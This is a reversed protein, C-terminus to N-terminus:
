DNLHNQFVDHVLPARYYWQDCTLGCIKNGEIFKIGRRYLMILLFDIRRNIHYISIEGELNSFLDNTVEPINLKDLYPKLPAFPALSIIDDNKVKNFDYNSFRVVKKKFIKAEYLSIAIGYWLWPTLFPWFCGFVDLSMLEWCVKIKKWITKKSGWRRMMIFKYKFPLQSIEWLPLNLIPDFGFFYPYLVYLYIMFPYDLEFNGTKEYFIQVCDKQSAM